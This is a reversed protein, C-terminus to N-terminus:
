ERTCTIRAGGLFGGLFLSSVTEYFALLAPDANATGRYAETRDAVFRSWVDSMDCFEVDRFGAATLEAVYTERVPLAPSQVVDRVLQAATEDMPTRRFLDEIYVRGGPKLLRAAKEFVPARDPIHTICLLSVVHDVPGDLAVLTFDGQVSRVSGGLGNRRTIDEALDHIAPQLEVGTVDAGYKSHLYRGTAGFGSGIDVVKDGAKLGLRAAANDLAEDGLYHMCDFSATDRPELVPKGALAAMAQYARDLNYLAMKEANIQTKQRAMNSASQSALPVLSSFSLRILDQYYM